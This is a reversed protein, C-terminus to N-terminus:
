RRGGPFLSVSLCVCVSLSLSAFPLRKTSLCFSPGVSWHYAIGDVFRAAATDNLITAVADIMIDKQYDHIYIRVDPHDARLRPGLYDRLFDRQQEADFGCCPYTVLFQGAVHPENQVTVRTINIGQAKYATLYLSLYLAYAQFIAPSQILGPKASNRMAKNRKMWAPPSWPTSLFQIGANTPRAAAVAQARKIMPIIQAMDHAISFNAMRYDDNTESYSYESVSFDTAGITLRAMNYQQGNAGWMLELVQQQLTANLQSFVTAV